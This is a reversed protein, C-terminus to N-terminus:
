RVQDLSEEYSDGETGPVDREDQLSDPEGLGGQDTLRPDDSLGASLDEECAVLFPLAITLLLARTM